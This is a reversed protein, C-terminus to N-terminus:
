AGPVKQVGPFFEEERPIFKVWVVAFGFLVLLEAWQWGHWVLWRAPLMKSVMRFEYCPSTLAWNWAPAHTGLAREM